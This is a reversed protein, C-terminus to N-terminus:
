RLIHPPARKGIRCPIPAPQYIPLLGLFSSIIPSVSRASVSTFTRLFCVIRVVTHALARLSRAIGLCVGLCFLAHVSLSVLVPGGLWIAGGLAHGYVVVQEFTEMGYLVGIQMVLIAPLLRLVTTPSLCDGVARLQWSKAAHARLAVHALAILGGALLAPLVDVNSHDTFSGRGFLGANSAFEVLPDALAASLIAVTLCFCARIASV